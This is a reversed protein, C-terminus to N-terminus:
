LQRVLEGLFLHARDGIVVVLVLLSGPLDHALRVGQPQPGGGPDRLVVSTAACVQERLQDELLLEGPTVRADRRGDVGAAQRSRVPRLRPTQAECEACTIKSSQKTDSSARRPKSASPLAVPGPATPAIIMSSAVRGSTAAPAMPM